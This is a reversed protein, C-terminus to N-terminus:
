PWVVWLLWKNGLFTPIRLTLFFQSSNTVPAVPRKLRDQQLASQIYPIKDSDIPRPATWDINSLDELMEWRNGIIGTM